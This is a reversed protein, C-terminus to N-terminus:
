GLPRLNKAVSTRYAMVAPIMGALAALLLGGIVVAAVLHIPLDPDILIGLRRRMTEAVVVTGLGAALVGVVAGLIGIAIAELIVIRGIGLASCGLVRLVAIQRRRQEMSNYLALMITVGSSAMVVAAMGLLVQDVNSVIQFLKIIENSPQAVTLRPDRRLESAITIIATSVDSGERTVGRIYIGTVMKEDPTLDEPDVHIHSHEEQEAHGEEAHEKEGAGEDHAADEQEEAHGAEAAERERKEEAHIVWAGELHAFVARDHPSGTPGLLGVVKFTHEHHEHAGAGGVGHTLTLRDGVKVNEKSWVRYGLVVEFPRALIVGAEIPWARAGPEQPDFKPDPSFKQFFEPLTGLVPYGRYSDGQQVPIAWALRPDQAVRLYQTWNLARAPAQAYFVGNLVSTLPPPDASVLLHMNGSGRKFAQGGSHRMSLLVLMLAVAVGVSLATTVTSFRRALMSRRVITLTSLAM